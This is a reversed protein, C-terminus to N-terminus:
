TEANEANTWQKVARARLLMGFRLWISLVFAVHCLHAVGAVLCVAVSFEMCVDLRANSPLLVRVEEPVWNEPSNQLIRRHWDLKKQSTLGVLMTDTHHMEVHHSLWAKCDGSTTTSSVWLSQEQWCQKPSYLFSVKSFGPLEERSVGAIWTAVDIGSPCNEATRGTKVSLSGRHKKFPPPENTAFTDPSRVDPERPVKDQDGTWCMITAGELDIGARTVIEFGQTSSAADGMTVHYQHMPPWPPDVSRAGFFLSCLLRM